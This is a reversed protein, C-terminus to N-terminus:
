KKLKKTLPHPLCVATKPREKLKTTLTLHFLGWVAGSFTAGHSRLLIFPVHKGTCGACMSHIYGMLPHHQRTLWMKSAHRSLGLDVDDFAAQVHWSMNPALVLSLQYEVWHQHSPGYRFLMLFTGAEHDFCTKCGSVLVSMAQDVHGLKAQVLNLFAAYAHGLEWNGGMGRPWVLKQM